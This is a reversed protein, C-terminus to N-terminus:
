KTNSTDVISKIEKIMKTAESLGKIIASRSVDDKIPSEYLKDLLNQLTKLTTKKEASDKEINLVYDIVTKLTYALNAKFTYTDILRTYYSIQWFMWILLFIFPSCVAILILHNIYIIDGKEFQRFYFSVYEYGLILTGVIAFVLYIIRFIQLSKATKNFKEAWISNKYIFDKALLSSSYLQTDEMAERVINLEKAIKSLQLCLKDFNWKAEKGSFDVIKKLFLGVRKSSTSSTNLWDELLVNLESLTKAICYSINGKIFMADDIAQSMLSKQGEDAKNEATNQLILIVSDLQETVKSILEDRTREM